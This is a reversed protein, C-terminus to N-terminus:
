PLAPFYAHYRSADLRSGRERRPSVAREPPSGTVAGDGEDPCSVTTWSMETHYSRTAFVIHSAVPGATGGYVVVTDPPVMGELAWHIFGLDWGAADFFSTVGTIDTACGPGTNHADGEFVCAGSDCAVWRAEGEAVMVAAPAGPTAPPATPVDDRCGALGALLAVVLAFPQRAEHMLKWKTRM